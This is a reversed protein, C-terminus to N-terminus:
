KEMKFSDLFVDAVKGKVKDLDAAVVSCAYLTNNTVLLRTRAFNGGTVKYNIDKGAIGNYTFDKVHLDTMGTTPKMGEIAEAYFADSSDKNGPLTYDGIPVTMGIYTYDSLTCTVEKAGEIPVEKIADPFRMTAGGGISTALFYQSFCPSCAMLLLLVVGVPKFTITKM